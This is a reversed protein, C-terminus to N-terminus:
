AEFPLWQETEYDFWRDIKTGDWSLQIHRGQVPIKVVDPFLAAVCKGGKHRVSPYLIGNGNRERIAKAFAQPAPYSAPDPDLYQPWSGDTLDYLVRDVKGIYERYDDSTPADSTAAHFKAKHYAVERLATEFKNAAYYVGFTGDTFRSAWSPSFHSFPAMVISAGPGSVRRAKPINSIEGAEERLRPNTLGELAFLADWDEKPSVREFLNIPPYKTPILRHACQWKVRRTAVRELDDSNFLEQQKPKTM